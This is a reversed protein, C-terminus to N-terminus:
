EDGGREVKQLVLTKGQVIIKIPDGKVWGVQASQAPPITIRNRDFKRVNGPSM